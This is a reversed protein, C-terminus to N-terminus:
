EAGPILAVAFPTIELKIAGKIAEFHYAEKMLRQHKPTVAGALANNVVGIQSAQAAGPGLREDDRLHLGEGPFVTKEKAAVRAIMGISFRAFLATKPRYFGVEKGPASELAQLVEVLLGKLPGRRAHVVFGL